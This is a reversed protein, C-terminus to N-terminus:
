DPNAPRLFYYGVYESANANTETSSSERSIVTRGGLQTSNPVVTELGYNSEIIQGLGPRSSGRMLGQNRWSEVLTDVGEPSEAPRSDSSRRILGLYRWREVLTDVDEPSEVPRSYGLILCRFIIEGVKMGILDANRIFRRMVEGERVHGTESRPIHHVRHRSLLQGFSESTLSLHSSSLARQIEFWTYGIRHARQVYDAIKSELNHDAVVTTVINNGLIKLYDKDARTAAIEREELPYYNNARLYQAITRSSNEDDDDDDVGKCIKFQEAYLVIRQATSKLGTDFILAGLWTQAQVWELMEDIQTFSIMTLEVLDQEIVAVGYGLKYATTVYDRITQIPFESPMNHFFFITHGLIRSTQVVISTSALLSVYIKTGLNIVSIIKM